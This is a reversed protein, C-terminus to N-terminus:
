HEELSHESGADKNVTAEEQGPRTGTDQEATPSSSVPHDPGAKGGIQPRSPSFSEGDNSPGKKQDSQRNDASPSFDRSIDNNDNNDNNHPTPTTTTATASSSTPNVTTSTKPGVRRNKAGEKLKEWRDRYRTNATRLRENERNQWDLERENRRAATELDKVRRELDANAQAGTGSGSGSAMVSVPTHTHHAVPSAVPSSSDSSIAPYHMAKLSQHLALSSSQSNVEWMHLRKSLRDSIHKLTQNEMQLEEMTKQNQPHHTINGRKNRNEGGGGGAGGAGAALGRRIDPSSFTERADVFDEDLDETSNGRAEREARTLIGAYSVTGGTTPVIYFSEAPSSPPGGNSSRVARLAAPSFLRKLDTEGTGSSGQRRDSTANVRDLKPDATSSRNSSEEQTNSTSSDLGLPLGAFALPASLKSILGEFTSYFRQFPEETLRGGWPRSSQEAEPPVVQQSTIDTPSAVTPSLHQKSSLSRNSQTDRTRQPQATRRISDGTRVRTPTETIRKAPANQSSLTPNAPSARRMHSPIGRATALNSAISPTERTQLRTNGSPRPPQHQLADQGTKVSRTEEAVPTSPGYSSGSSTESAAASAPHEHQFRLIHALKKHHNELLQLTRIAQKRTICIRM